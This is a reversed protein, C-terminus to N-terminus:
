ARRGKLFIESKRICSTQRSCFGQRRLACGSRTQSGMAHELAKYVTQDFDLTSFDQRYYGVKVGVTIDAGQPTGLAINELLTSKGIGNPGKLLLHQNKRLSINTKKKVAKKGKIVSYATLALVVGSLHEQAPITFPRITRDEKRVDVKEEEM